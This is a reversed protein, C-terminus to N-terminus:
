LYLCLGILTQRNSLILSSKTFVRTTAGSGWLYQSSSNDLGNKNGWYVGMIDETRKRQTESYISYVREWWSVGNLLSRTNEAGIGVWLGKNEWKRLSDTTVFLWTGLGNCDEFSKWLTIHFRIKNLVSSTYTYIYINLCKRLLRHYELHM